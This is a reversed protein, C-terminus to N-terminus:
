QVRGMKDALKRNIDAMNAQQILKGLEVQMLRLVDVPLMDPRHHAIGKFTDVASIGSAIAANRLHICNYQHLDVIEAM